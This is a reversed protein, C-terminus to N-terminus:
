LSGGGNQSLSSSGVGGSGSFNAREQSALKKRRDGVSGNSEFTERALDTTTFGDQGYISALKDANPQESAILSFGQDAQQQSVGAGALEEALSSGIDIGQKAAAGGIKLAEFQKGVLPAARSQDLAYAIMDGDSYYKKFYDRAEQPANTIVDSAAKVRTQIESPSVDKALWGEFDSPQDYFGKPLGAESMIQRYARETALYENPSLVPLGAKRRADNAAFRKKYEPTDQLLVSITDGSYGQKIFGVIAPALSELGYSKFLNTLAVAADRDAGNLGGYPDTVDTAM